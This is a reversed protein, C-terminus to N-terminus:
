GGVPVEFVLELGDEDDWQEGVQVFGFGKITALSADNDPSISARVRSVAPETAAWRLLETVMARAYGRRRFRPDVTYGIEVTGTEDPPGHFGAHGVVVDEPEAVAARAVWAACGPDRDIQDLRLRWLWGCEEGALFDGLRIGTLDSAAETQGAALARMAAPPVAVLRVRRTTRQAPAEM